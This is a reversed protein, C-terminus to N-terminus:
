TYLMVSYRKDIMTNEQPYQNIIKDGDGDVEYHLGLKYMLYRAENYDMGIINPMAFKEGIVEFDKETFEPSISKYNFINQFLEGVPPACVQSGYYLGQPEDVIFLVLYEPDLLPAFGVFSSIYKGRAISGNEYKQATGTKGGIRYGPIYCPKGSGETVVRELMPLLKDTTSKSIVRRDNKEEYKYAYKNLNPDYINKVIHPTHNIGGNIVTAVSNILSLPTVAIAQGFGIRALDVTKVTEPKLYIASAEGVMDVGSKNLIGFKELYKYYTDVGTKLATEMFVCNCSNKVGDSFTQEGHGKSKWCRIKDGDVIKSGNCYFKHDDPFVNNEIGIASTIIKFTSGPEYVSSVLNNKSMKFLEPINDRPVENLDFSPVESMALIESNKPNLVVCSVRKAEKILYTEKVIKEVFKQINIDITIRVDCGDVAPIYLNGGNIQQGILDTETLKKGDLGMLYKNYYAEIGTQGTADVNTFGLVQSLVDGYPYYRKIDTSFYVGDLKKSALEKMIEKPVQKKITIESSKQTTIKEYLKKYDLSLYKALVKAVEVPNKVANPRVYVSYLSLNETLKVGNSDVINGRNAKLPLERTWQDFAKVQLKESSIVQVYMLKSIVFIFLFTILLTITLLRRSPTFNINQNKKNM